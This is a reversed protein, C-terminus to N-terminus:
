PEFTAGFLQPFSASSTSAQILAVLRHPLVREEERPGAWPLYWLYRPLPLQNGVPLPVASPCALDETVVPSSKLSLNAKVRAKYRQSLVTHSLCASILRQQATVRAAAKRPGQPRHRAFIATVPAELAKFQELASM